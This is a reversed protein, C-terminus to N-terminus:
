VDDGDNDNDKDNNEDSNIENIDWSNNRRKNKNVFKNFVRQRFLNDSDECKQNNKSLYDILLQPNQKENYKDLVEEIQNIKDISRNFNKKPLYPQFTPLFAEQMYDRKIKRKKVDQEYLRDVWEDDSKHRKYKKMKKAMISNSIINQYEKEKKKNNEEILKKKKLNLNDNLEKQRVLFDKSYKDYKNGIKKSINPKGTYIQNEKNKLEKKKNDFRKKATKKEEDFRKLVDDFNIKRKEEKRATLNQTKENKENKKIKNIFLEPNKKTKKIIKSNNNNKPVSSNAKINKTKSNYIITSNKSKTTSPLNNIYKKKKAETSLISSASLLRIKKNKNNEKINRTKIKDKIISTLDGFVDKKNVKENLSKEDKTISNDNNKESINEKKDNNNNNEINEKNINNEKKIFKIETETFESKGNEYIIEKKPIDDDFSIIDSNTNHNSKMELEIDNLLYKNGNNSSM